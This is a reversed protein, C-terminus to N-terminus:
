QTVTSSGVPTNSAPVSQELATLTTQLSTHAALVNKIVSRYISELRSWAAVPNESGVFSTVEIDITSLTKKAAALEAAATALSQAAASTDLGASTSKELRTNLRNQVNDLRRVTADLRNSLNAALNTIRTQALPQLKARMNDKIIPPPLATTTTAALTSTGSTSALEAAHTQASLGFLLVLFLFTLPTSTFSKQM